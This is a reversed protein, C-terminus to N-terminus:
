PKSRKKLYSTDLLQDTSVSMASLDGVYAEVDAFALKIAEIQLHLAEPSEPAYITSIPTSL